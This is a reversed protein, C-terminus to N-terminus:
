YAATGDPRYLVTYACLIDVTRGDTALPVVLNEIAGFDRNTWLMPRGKRWSPVGTEVVGRYRDFFHGNARINPHAEDLWQGTVEHGIAEVIGTGALRYRLRFPARQVDLLWIGPLLDPVAVPDFARRRPPDGGPPCISLWYRYLRLVRPHWAATDIDLPPTTQLIGM